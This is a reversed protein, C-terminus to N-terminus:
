GRLSDGERVDCIAKRNAVFPHVVLFSFLRADRIVECAVRSHPLGGGAGECSLDFTELNDESPLGYM